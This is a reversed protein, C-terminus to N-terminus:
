DRLFQVPSRALDLRQKGGEITDYGTGPRLQHQNGAIGSDAFGGDDILQMFRQNTRTAKKRRALEVLVLAVDRIGGECLGELAQGAPKEAPACLLQAPPAIGKM